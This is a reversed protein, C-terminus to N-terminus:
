RRFPVTLPYHDINGDNIYFATNGIGTSDIERADPYRTTYYSWYNGEKGNDWAGSEAGDFWPNSVQLGSAVKNDIFTNHYFTSNPSASVRVGFGDNEQFLNGVVMNGTCGILDIGGGGDQIGAGNSFFDNDTIVNNQGNHFEVGFWINGTFTNNNVTNLNSDYGYVGHGQNGVFLNHTIIYENSSNTIKVGGKLNNVIHNGDILNNSSWMAAVAYNNNSLNNQAITCGNTQFLTIAAQNHTLNLNQITINQCNYLFVLGADAPVAANQVFRWCCIPKGDVTNSADITENESIGVLNLTNNLFTNNRLTISSSESLFLGVGQNNAVFNGLVENDTGSWVDVGGNENGTVRNRTMICGSSDWFRVAPQGHCATINCDTIAIGSNEGMYIGTEFGTITLNRIVVNNVHNAELGNNATFSNEWPLGQLTHGAGDIIINSKEISVTYNVVDRKLTFINGNQEFADTLNVADSIRITFHPPPEPPLGRDPPSGFHNFSSLGFVILFLSVVILVTGAVAAAGTKSL